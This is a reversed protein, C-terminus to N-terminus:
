DYWQLKESSTVCLGTLFFVLWFSEVSFITFTVSSHLYSTAYSNWM